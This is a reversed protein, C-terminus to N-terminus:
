ARLAKLKLRIKNFADVAEDVKLVYTCIFYVTGGAAVPLLLKVARDTLGSGYVHGSIWSNLATVGILMVASSIIVKSLNLAMDRVDFGGVKKWIMYLIVVGGTVGSITYALPVGLVGLFRKLVLTSGINVLMIIVSNVAPKVTDNLSYFARDVVEKVSIGTIGLAYLALIRSALSVNDPTIKGLEFLHMLPYRVAIFGFAAPITLYFITKLIRTLSSKFGEMDNRAALMTLKPFVVATVSYILVLVSYLLIDQVFSMLTVANKFNATVTLNFLMNLQYASTAILIPPILRLARKIDENKYDFSPRFRYGANMVPPILILAQLSLGVFTAILLGMVGFKSGLTYVYLILVMSSPISVLAPMNYKGLSQLIGQLIFNLAYFVMIPFMIRLATVAFGYNQDKFGTLLVVAPAAAIGLASLLLTLVMSLSIVNDAFKFAREKENTGIYGAFIPIVTITLSTGLITFLINPLKIAYTYINIEAYNVGFFTMYVTTSLFSLLRSCLTIIMVLGVTKATSKM